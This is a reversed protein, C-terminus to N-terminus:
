ELGVLSVTGNDLRVVRLQEGTNIAVLLDEETSKTEKALKPITSFEHQSDASLTDMVRALTILASSVGNLDDALTSLACASGNLTHLVASLGSNM